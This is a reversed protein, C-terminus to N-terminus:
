TGGIGQSIERELNQWDEATLSFGQHYVTESYGPIASERTGLVWRPARGSLEELVWSRGRSDRSLDHGVVTCSVEPGILSALFWQSGDLGCLVEARRFLQVQNRADISGPDIASFSNARAIRAFREGDRMNRQILGLDRSLLIKTPMIRESGLAPSQTLRERLRAFGIPEANVRREIEDISWRPNHAAYIRSPSIWLRKARIETGQPVAAISIDPNMLRLFDLFPAPVRKDIVVTTSTPLGADLMFAYRTLIDRVWHGWSWSQPYALWAADELAVSSRSADFALVLDHSDRRVDAVVSDHIPRNNFSDPWTYYDAYLQRGVAIIDSSVFATADHVSLAGGPRIDTEILPRNDEGVIMIEPVGITKAADLVVTDVTSGAQWINPLLEDIAHSSGPVGWRSRPALRARIQRPVVPIAESIYRCQQTSFSAVDDRETLLEGAFQPTLVEIITHCCLDALERSRFPLLGALRASELLQVLDATSGTLVHVSQWLSHALVHQARASAAHAADRLASETTPLPTSYVSTSVRQGWLDRSLQRTKRAFRKMWTRTAGLFSFSM